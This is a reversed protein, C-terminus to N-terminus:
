VIIASVLVVVLVVILGKELKISYNVFNDLNDLDDLGNLGDLRNVTWYQSLRLLVGNMSAGM